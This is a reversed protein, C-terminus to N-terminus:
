RTELNDYVSGLLMQENYYVPEIIDNDLRNRQLRIYNGENKNEENDWVEAFTAVCDQSHTTAFVQVNLEKSFRFIIEWLKKQVSHHLGLDIEDILLINNQANVLALAITFIRNTGEGLNKLPLPSEENRLLVRPKKTEIDLGVDVIKKEIVSLMEIVKRKRPSLDIKKWLNTNDFDLSTPVFVVKDWAYDDISSLSGLSEREPNKDGNKIKDFGTYGNLKTIEGRNNEIVLANLEFVAFDKYFLSQFVEKTSSTKDFADRKRLIDNVVSPNANSELIRIVELITTKGTNNKGTILNIRRLKDLELSKFLRYNRIHLHELM